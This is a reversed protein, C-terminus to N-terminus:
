LAIASVEEDGHGAWSVAWILAAHELELKVQWLLVWHDCWLNEESGLDVVWIDVLEATDAKVDELVLPGWGELDLSHEEGDLGQHRCWVNIVWEVLTNGVVPLGILLAGDGLGLLPSLLVGVLSCVTPSAIAPWWTRDILNIARSRSPPVGTSSPTLELAM